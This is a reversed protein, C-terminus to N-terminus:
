SIQEFIKPLESLSKVEVHKIPGTKPIESLAKKFITNLEVYAIALRNRNSKLLAYIDVSHKIIDIVGLAIARDAKTYVVFSHYGQKMPTLASDEQLIKMGEPDIFQKLNEVEKVLPSYIPQELFFLSRKNNKASLVFAPVNKNQGTLSALANFINFPEKTAKALVVGFEDEVKFLDKPFKFADYPVQVHIIAKFNPQNNQQLSTVKM